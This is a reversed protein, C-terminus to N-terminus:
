WIVLGQQLAQAVGTPRRNNSRTAVHDGAPLHQMRWATVAQGLGVVVRGHKGALHVAHAQQQEGVEALRPTGTNLVSVSPPMSNVM